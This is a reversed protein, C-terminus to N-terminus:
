NYCMISANPEFSRLVLGTIGPHAKLFVNLGKTEDVANTGVCSLASTWDEFTRRGYNIYVTKGTECVM